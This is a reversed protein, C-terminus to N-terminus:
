YISNIKRSFIKSAKQEAKKKSSETATAFTEGDVSLAVSFHKNVGTGVESIIEFVIKKRNKQGWELVKSKYNVETHILQDINLHKAIIFNLIFKKCAEFGLDLYCAGILAELANGLVSNKMATENVNAVILEQLKMQDAVKNLSNRSVIKSRLSSLAGERMNPYKQFLHDSVIASLIADGLYELRENSESHIDSGEKIASKHRFALEYFFADDPYIGVISKIKKEFQSRKRFLNLFFTWNM